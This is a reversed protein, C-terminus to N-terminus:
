GAWGYNEEGLESRLSRERRERFRLVLREDELVCAIM